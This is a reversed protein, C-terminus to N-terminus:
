LDIKRLLREIPDESFTAKKWNTEWRENTQVHNERVVKAVNDKFDNWKFENFNRVVYGECVKGFNSKNPIPLECIEGKYIEPVTDLGLLECWYKVEDWGLYNEGVLIGFVFFCTPLTQYEISHIAYLSEGCIYMDEPIDYRIINWFRTMYTQWPKGFGDESRAHISKRSLVQNEGDLKELYILEKNKFSDINSLIKDDKTASKTWTLHYTRAYKM